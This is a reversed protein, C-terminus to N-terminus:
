VVPHPVPADSLAPAPADELEHDPRMWFALIGGFILLAIGAVFTLEWNGTKDIIYGGVIPSVIAAFASGSNMLGSASGSYRPAIDMPIAWMPGVTFEAFFFAASLLLAVVGLSHLFLVPIMLVASAFFGVIVLNRRAKIRDGTKEFIRDSVIGGLADGVVGGLFVGASFWASDKLVLKYSHLFYSPIWTLFFWLTWGYCFYVITVTMMRRALRAFPVPPRKKGAARHQPLEALEAQTIAPHEAPNDRFYWVWVIAWLFSLLGIVIFSGRWLVLAILWAVLPPTVANGIRAFSHTIGQGFGRKRAPMWDSMARTATPLASVGIGLLVRSVLMGILSSTVGMWVTAASWIVAFTTLAKRAGWRDSVWGGIFQFVLYPFAFMSFILGVQTNSLHLEDKFVLAATNVNVRVVYNIFYMLCLLALVVNTARLPRAPATVRATETSM